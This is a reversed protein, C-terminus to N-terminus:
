KKIIFEYIAIIAAVCGIVWSAIELFSKKPPNHPIIKNANQIAPNILDSDLSQYWNNNGGIFNKIKINPKKNEAESLKKLKYYEEFGGNKIFIETRYDCEITQYHTGKDKINGIEDGNVSFNCIENYLFDFKELPIQFHNPLYENEFSINRNDNLFRLIDDLKLIEDKELEM